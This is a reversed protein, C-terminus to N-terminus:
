EWTWTQEKQPIALTSEIWESLELRQMQTYRGRISLGVPYPLSGEASVFVELESPEFHLSKAKDLIYTKTKEQIIAKMQPQQLTNEDYEATIGQIQIKSLAKSIDTATINSLPALIM